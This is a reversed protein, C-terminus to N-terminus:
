REILYKSSASKGIVSDPSIKQIGVRVEIPTENINNKNGISYRKLSLLKTLFRRLFIFAKGAFIFFIFKLFARGDIHPLIFFIFKMEHTISTHTLVIMAIVEYLIKNISISYISLYKNIM